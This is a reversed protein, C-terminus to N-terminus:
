ATQLAYYDSLLGYLEPHHQRLERGRQFFAESAVAFFEAPNETGYDDLVPSGAECLLEYHRGFVEAWRRYDALWPAGDAGSAEFDLQHAFEHVVVNHSDGRAAAQVDEWSLIVRSKSWAEGSLLRPDEDVLGLEDVEPHHVWFATPYVLVSRLEPFCPAKPQLCLLCAHGAITVRMAETLQLGNCGYFLKEHLFWQVQNELRERLETSMSRYLPLNARLLDRWAMPFPAAQVRSRRYRRWLPKLALWAAFALIAALAALGALM